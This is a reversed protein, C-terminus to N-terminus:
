EAFAANRLVASVPDSNPMSSASVNPSDPNVRETVLPDFMGLIEDSLQFPVQQQFALVVCKVQNNSVRMSDIIWLTDYYDGEKGLKRSTNHIQFFVLFSQM